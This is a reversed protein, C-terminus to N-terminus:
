VGTPFLECGFSQFDFHHFTVPGVPGVPGPLLYNAQLGLHLSPNMVSGFHAGVPGSVPGPVPGVPGANSLLAM